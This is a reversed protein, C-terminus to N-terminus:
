SATASADPRPRREAREVRRRRDRRAAVALGATAARLRAAAGAPSEHRVSAAEEESNRSGPVGAATDEALGIVHGAVDRALWSGCRSKANWQDESLGEVLAALSEYQALCGRSVHPRDLTTTTM